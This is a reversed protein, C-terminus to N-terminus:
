MRLISMQNVESDNVTVIVVVGRGCTCCRLVVVLGVGLSRFADGLVEFGEWVGGFYVRWGGLQLIQTNVRGGAPARPSGAPRSRRSREAGDYWWWRDM